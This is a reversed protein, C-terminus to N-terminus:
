KLLFDLLPKLRGPEVPKGGLSTNVATQLAKVKKTASKSRTPLAIPGPVALPCREALWASRKPGCSPQNIPLSGGNPGSYKHSCGPM